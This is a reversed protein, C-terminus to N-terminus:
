AAQPLAVTKRTVVFERPLSSILYARFTSSGDHNSNLKGPLQNRDCHLVQQLAHWHRFENLDGLVWAALGFDDEDAFGYFIYDGWGSLVKPLETMARSPRSARLTFQDEYLDGDRDRRGLQDHRRIRCAIRKTEAKLVLLDTNRQLDEELPAEVILYNAIARKIEPIFRRQWEFDRDFAPM